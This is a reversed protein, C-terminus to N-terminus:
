GMNLFKLLHFLSATVVVGVSVIKALNSLFPLMIM